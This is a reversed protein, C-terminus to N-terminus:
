NPKLMLDRGPLQSAYWPLQRGKTAQEVSDQVASLMMRVDKGPEVMHKLLATVYPSHADDGDLAVDGPGTAYAILIGSTAQVAALGFSAGGRTRRFMRNAFPNDRCADLIIVKIGGADKLRDLLRNVPVAEEEVDIEDKLNADIPVLYNIGKVEMGHGAYYIVAWDADKAVDSFAKLSQLLADRGLDVHEQVVQFGLSNLEKAVAKSDNIPNKLHSAQQYTGNGIVLAVRRGLAPTPKEESSKGTLVTLREIEAILNRAEDVHSGQPFRELYVHLLQNDKSDRVSMWLPEELWRDEARRVDQVDASMRDFKFTGKLKNAFFPVQRGNTVEAVKVQVQRFVSEADLGPTQLAASLALSYNNSDAANMGPRGQTALLQGAEFLSPENRDLHSDVVVFRAKTDLAALRSTVEAFPVGISAVQQNHDQAAPPFEDNLILYNRNGDDGAHGSFYFFVVAEPGGAKVEEVFRRLAERFDAGSGDKLRRIKFGLSQLTASMIEGDNHSFALRGIAPVYNQNTVIFAYRTEGLGATSSSSIFSALGIMLAALRGLASGFSLFAM